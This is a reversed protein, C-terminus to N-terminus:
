PDSLNLSNRVLETEISRTQGLHVAPIASPYLMAEWVADVTATIAERFVATGEACTPNM